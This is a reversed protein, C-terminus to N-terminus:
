GQPVSFFALVTKAGTNPVLTPAGGLVVATTLANANDNTLVNIVTGPPVVFFTDPVEHGNFVPNSASNRFTTGGVNLFSGTPSSFRLDVADYNLDNSQMEFAWTDFAGSYITPDTTVGTAVQQFSGVLAAKSSAVFLVLVCVAASTKRIM